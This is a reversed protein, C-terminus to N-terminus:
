CGTNTLLCGREYICLMWADKHKFSGTKLKNKGRQSGLPEQIQCSFFTVSLRKRGILSSIRKSRRGHNSSISAANM